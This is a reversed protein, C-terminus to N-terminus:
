TYGGGHQKFWPDIQNKTLRFRKWMEENKTMDTTVFVNSWRSSKLKTKNKMVQNRQVRSGLKVWVLRPREDDDPKSLRKVKTIEVNELKLKHIMETVKEYDTARQVVTDTVSSGDEEDSAEVEESMNLIIINCERAERQKLEYLQRNRLNNMTTVSQM